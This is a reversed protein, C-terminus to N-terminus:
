NQLKISILWFNVSKKGKKSHFIYLSVKFLFLSKTVWLDQFSLMKSSFIKNTCAIAWHKRFSFRLTQFWATKHKIHSFPHFLIVKKIDYIEFNHANADILIFNRFFKVHIDVCLFCLIAIMKPPWLILGM